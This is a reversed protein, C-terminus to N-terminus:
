IEKKLIGQTSSYTEPNLKLNIKQIAEWFPGAPPDTDILEALQNYEEKTLKSELLKAMKNASIKM